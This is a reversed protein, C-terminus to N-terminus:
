ETEMESRFAWEQSANEMGTLTKIMRGTMGWGQLLSQLTKSKMIKIDRKGHKREKTQSWFQVM